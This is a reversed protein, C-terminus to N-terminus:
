RPAREASLEGAVADALGRVTRLTFVQEDELEIDYEKEVAAILRMVKVSDLGAVSALDDDASIGAAEQGLLGALLETIRDTIDQPMTGDGM